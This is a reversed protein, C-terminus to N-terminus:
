IYYLESVIEIEDRDIPDIPDFLISLGQLLEAPRVFSIKM